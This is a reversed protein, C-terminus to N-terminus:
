LPDLWAVFVADGNRLFKYVRVTPNGSFTLISDFKCGDLKHSLMKATYYSSKKTKLPDTEPSYVQGVHDFYGGKRGGWGFWEVPGTWFSHSAGNAMAMLSMKALSTAQDPESKTVYTGDLPDAAPTGSYDSLENIWIQTQNFSLANLKTRMEQLTTDLRYSTNAIRLNDYTGQFQRSWHLDVVDFCTYIPNAKRFSALLPYLVTQCGRPNSMGAFAVLTNPAKAKIVSYSAALLNLYAPMNDQWGIPIDIENEIQWCSVAAGYRTVAASLFNKYNELNVPARAKPRQSGTIGQDWRNAASVVVCIKVGMKQLTGFIRDTQSWNYVGRTPEVMDWVLGAPGALRVWPIGLDSLLAINDNFHDEFGHLGLPSGASFGIYVTSANSTTASEILVPVNGVSLPMTGGVVDVNTGPFLAAMDRGKLDKGSATGSVVPIIRAKKWPVALNIVTDAKAHPAPLLATLFCVIGLLAGGTKLTFASYSLSPTKM